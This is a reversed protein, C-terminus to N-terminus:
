FGMQPGEDQQWKGDPITAIKDIYTIHMINNYEVNDKKNEVHVAWGVM